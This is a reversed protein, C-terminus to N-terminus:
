LSKYSTPSFQIPIQKSSGPHSAQPAEEELIRGSRNEEHPDLNHLYYGVKGHPGYVYAGEEYYGGCPHPAWFLVGIYGQDNPLSCLLNKPFNEKPAAACSALRATRSAGSLAMERISVKERGSGQDDSSQQYDSTLHCDRGLPYDSPYPDNIQAKHEAANIKKNTQALM